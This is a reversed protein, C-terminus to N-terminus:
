KQEGETDKKGTKRRILACAGMSVLGIAMYIGGYVWLGQVDMSLLWSSGTVFLAVAVVPMWWRRRMDQGAFMGSYLACFPALLFFICMCILMAATPDAALVILPGGVMVLLLTLLWLMWKTM